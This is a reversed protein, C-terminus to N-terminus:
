SEKDVFFEDDFFAREDAEEDEEDLDFFDNCRAMDKVDAESMYNLAALLAERAKLSGDDVMELVRRTLPDPM